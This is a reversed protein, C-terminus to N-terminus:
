VLKQGSNMNANKFQSTYLKWYAQDFKPGRSKAKGIDTAIKSTIQCQTIHKTATQDVLDNLTKRKREFPNTDRKKIVPKLM